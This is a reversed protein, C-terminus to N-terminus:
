LDMTQPNVIITLFEQEEEWAKRVDEASYNDDVLMEAIRKAADHICNLRDQKWAEIKKRKAREKRVTNIYNVGVATTVVGIIALPLTHDEKM